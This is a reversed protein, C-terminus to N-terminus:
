LVYLYCSSSQPRSTLWAVSFCVFMAPLIMVSLVYNVDLYGDNVTM